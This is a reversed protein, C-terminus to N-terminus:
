APGHCLGRQLKSLQVRPLSFVSALAGTESSLITPTWPLTVHLRLQMPTLFLAIVELLTLLCMLCPAHSQFFLDDFLVGLHKVQTVLVLAEM